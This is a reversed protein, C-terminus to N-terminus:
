RDVTSAIRLRSTMNGLSATKQSRGVERFAAAMRTSAVEFGSSFSSRDPSWACDAYTMAYIRSVGRADYYLMSYYILAPLTM